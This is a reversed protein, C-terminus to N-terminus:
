KEGNAPKLSLESLQDLTGEFGPIDRYTGLIDDCRNDMSGWGIQDSLGPAYSEILEWLEEKSM